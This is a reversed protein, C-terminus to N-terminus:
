PRKFDLGQANKGRARVGGEGGAEEREGGGRTEQWTFSIICGVHFVGEERCPRQGPQGRLWVHGGQKGRTIFEKDLRM